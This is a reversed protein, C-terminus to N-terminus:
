EYNIRELNMRCYGEATTLSAAQAPVPRM